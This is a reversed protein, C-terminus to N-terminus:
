GNILLQMTMKECTTLHLVEPTSYPSIEHAKMLWKLSEDFHGLQQKVFAMARYGQELEPNIEIAKGALIMASDLWQRPNVADASYHGYNISLLAFADAFGPDLQIVQKLLHIAKQTNPQKGGAGEDLFSLSSAKLYKDYAEM